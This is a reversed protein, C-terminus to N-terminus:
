TPHRQGVPMISSPSKDSDSNDWEARTEQIRRFLLRDLGSDQLAGSGDPFWGFIKYGQGETFCFATSFYRVLLPRDVMEAGLRQVLARLMVSPQEGGRAMSRLMEILDSDLSIV